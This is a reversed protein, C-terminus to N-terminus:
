ILPIKKTELIFYYSEYSNIFFINDFNMLCYCRYILKAFSVRLVDFSHTWHSLISHLNLIRVWQPDINGEPHLMEMLSEENPSVDLSYKQTLTCAQFFCITTNLYM